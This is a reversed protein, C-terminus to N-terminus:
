GPAGLFGREILDQLIVNTPSIEPTKVPRRMQKYNSLFNQIAGPEWMSLRINEGVGEWQETAKRHILTPVGLQACEAQIGGSDTVVFEAEKLVQIFEEYPLKSKTILQNQNELAEIDSLVNGSFDDVFIYVPYPAAEAISVITRNVEDLNSLFEFRHLLCVGYSETNLNENQPAELVADIVTNGHTYVVNAKGQLNIEAQLTPVYHITALKGAIMRDLEEPFPNRWDGSRLGAEVHACPLSLIKAFITGMVTTLTDGHVILLSNKGLQSKLRRRNSVIWWFMAFIWRLASVSSQLSNGGVGNPIVVQTGQFGLKQASEILKHGHQMTLWQEYPIGLENFKRALPAIKIAEASTGFIFVFM